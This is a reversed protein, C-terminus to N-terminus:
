RERISMSGRLLILFYEHRGPMLHTQNCPYQYQGNDQRDRQADPQCHLLGFLLKIAFQVVKGDAYQGANLLNGILCSLRQVFSIRMRSGGATRLM